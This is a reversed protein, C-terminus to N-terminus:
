LEPNPFLELLFTFLAQAQPSKLKVILPVTKGRPAEWEPVEEVGSESYIEQLSKTFGCPRWERILGPTATDITMTEPFNDKTPMHEKKLKEISELVDGILIPHGVIIKGKGDCMNCEPDLMVCTWCNDQYKAALHDILTLYKNM